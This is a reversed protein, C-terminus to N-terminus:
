GSRGCTAARTSTAPRRRSRLRCTTRRAMMTNTRTLAQSSEFVKAVGFDLVKPQTAGTPLTALYINDPKLDRHVIGKEHVTAMAALVPLITDVARDVRMPGHKELRDALSEGTLFEMAIYPAGEVAGVDLVGVINPHELQAVVQAERQFRALVDTRRVFQDHLVKLAVRRGLPERVAEYVAGFAGAGLLRLM